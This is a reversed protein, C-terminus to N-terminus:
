RTPGFTPARTERMRSVSRSPERRTAATRQIEPVDELPFGLGTWNVLAVTFGIGLFRKAWIYGESHVNAANTGLLVSGLVMCGFTLKQVNPKLQSYMYRLFLFWLAIYFAITTVTIPEAVPPRDYYEATMNQKISYISHFPLIMASISCELYFGV